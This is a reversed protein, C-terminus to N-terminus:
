TAKPFPSSKFRSINYYRAPPPVIIYISVAYIYICVHMISAHISGSGSPAHRAMFVLFGGLSTATM